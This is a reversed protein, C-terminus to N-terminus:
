IDWYNKSVLAINLFCPYFRGAYVPRTLPLSHRAEIWEAKMGSRGVFVCSGDEKTSWHRKGIQPNNLRQMQYNMLQEDVNEMYIIGEATRRPRRIM